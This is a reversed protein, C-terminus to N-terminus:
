NFWRSTGGGLAPRGPSQSQGLQDSHETHLQDRPWAASMRLISTIVSSIPHLCEIPNGQNEPKPLLTEKCGKRAKLLDWLVPLLSFNQFPSPSLFPSSSFSPPHPYFSSPFHFVSFSLLLLLFTKHCSQDYLMIMKTTSCLPFLSGM